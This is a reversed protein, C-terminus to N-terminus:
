EKKRYPIMKREQEEFKHIDDAHKAFESKKAPWFLGGFFVALMVTWFLWKPISVIEHGGHQIVVHNVTELGLKLGIWGVLLYAAHELKPFRDMLRLVVGAIYRMAILGIMGSTYIVWKDNTMAFAAVISDVSFAIDTFEVIAITKWFGPGGAPGKTEGEGAPQHRNNFKHLFHKFALYLLYAAGAAKFVWFRILWAAALVAIFRFVFAGLIGYQLAKTQRNRPLHKVLIPLVLANDASLLSQLIVQAGLVYWNQAFWDIIAM